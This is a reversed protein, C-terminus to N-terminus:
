RRLVVLSVSLLAAAIVAVALAIQPTDFYRPSVVSGGAVVAPPPDDTIEDLDASLVQGPGGDSAATGAPNYRAFTGGTAETLARLTDNGAPGTDAVDARAIANLQIGGRQAMAQVQGRDYLAPRAEDAGRWRTYGIYVLQRRHGTANDFNPFGTMCMALADELSAAYDVYTVSRAFAEIGAALELREDTSM